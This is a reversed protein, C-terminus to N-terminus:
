RSFIENIPDESKVGANRLMQEFGIPKGSFTDYSRPCQESCNPLACDDILRHSCTKSFSDLSVEFPSYDVSRKDRQGLFSSPQEKTWQKAVASRSEARRCPCRKRLFGGSKLKVQSKMKRRCLRAEKSTCLPRPPKAAADAQEFDPLLPSPPPVNNETSGDWWCRLAEGFSVGDISFSTWQRDNLVVHGVCAPAFVASVNQLDRILKTRISQVYLGQAKTRPVFANSAMLQAEDYLWQFIFVPSQLTSYINSGYFCNWPEHRHSSMCRGPLESNWLKIGKRLTAAPSCRRPDMCDTKSYPAADLFWGSDVLGRVKIKSGHMRLWHGVTDVNLLVGTAGASSGALLLRKGKRLGKALLQTIVEQLILSGMFALKQGKGKPTNGTWVDSSCYPIYVINARWFIPNEEEDGSLIGGAAHYTQWSKSSMLSPTHLWRSMCSAEDHCYWGGELFILWLKSRPYRRLYYGAPSGDNCTASSNKLLVRRLVNPDDEQWSTSISELTNKRTRSAKPRTSDDMWWSAEFVDASNKIRSARSSSPMSHTSSINFFVSTLHVVAVVHFLLSGM